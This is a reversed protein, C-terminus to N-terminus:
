AHEKQPANLPECRWRILRYTPYDAMFAALQPMGVQCSKSTVNDLDSTTVIAEHCDNPSALKCLIAIVKIM